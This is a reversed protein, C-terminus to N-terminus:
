APVGGFKAKSLDILETKFKRLQHFQSPGFKTNRGIGQREARWNYLFARPVASEPVVQNSAYISLEKMEDRSIWKMLLALPTMKYYNAVTELLSLREWESIDKREFQSKMSQCIDAENFTKSEFIYAIAYFPALLTKALGKVVLSANRTKDDVIDTVWGFLNLAAGIKGLVGSQSGTITEIRQSILTQSEPMMSAKHKRLLYGKHISEGSRLLALIGFFSLTVGFLYPNAVVLTSAVAITVLSAATMAGSGTFALAKLVGFIRSGSLWNKKMKYDIRSKLIKQADQPCAEITKNVASMQKKQRNYRTFKKFATKMSEVAGVGCRVVTVGMAVLPAVLAGAGGVIVLFAAYRVTDLIGKTAAINRKDGHYSEDGDGHSVEFKDRAANLAQDKQVKKKARKFSLADALITFPGVVIGGVEMLTLNGLFERRETFFGVFNRFGVSEGEIDAKGDMAHQKNVFNREAEIVDVPKSEDDYDPAYRGISVWRSGDPDDSTTLVKLNGNRDEWWEFNRDETYEALTRIQSADGRGSEFYTGDIVYQNGDEAHYVCIAHGRNSDGDVLGGHVQFEGGLGMEAQMQEGYEQAMFAFDECDIGRGNDGLTETPTAWYDAVGETDRDYAYTFGGYKFRAQINQILVSYKTQDSANDIGEPFTSSFVGMESDVDNGLAGDMDGLNNIEYNETIGARIDGILAGHIVQGGDPIRSPMSRRRPNSEFSDNEGLPWIKAGIARSERRPLALGTTSSNRHTTNALQNNFRPM